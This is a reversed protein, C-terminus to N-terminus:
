NTYYGFGMPNSLLDKNIGHFGGHPDNYIEEIIAYQGWIRKGIWPDDGGVPAPGVYIIKVFYTYHYFEGGEEYDGEYHNTVWGMSTGTSDGTKKDLGRDLLGDGNCDVNALWDDSWKMVLTDLGEAAPPNPRTYNDSLGNFMHAQYNYGYQDFGLTVENGASDVIFGSKINVCDGAKAVNTAFPVLLAVALLIKGIKM